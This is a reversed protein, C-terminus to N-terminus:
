KRGFDAPIEGWKDTQWKLIPNTYTHEHLWTIAGLLHRHVIETDATHVLTTAARRKRIWALATQSDTYVPVSSRQSKTLYALAHVIALFEGINNTALPYAVHFVEQGTTLDIGRYEMKGPNGACAADVAIAEKEYPPQGFITTFSNSGSAMGYM